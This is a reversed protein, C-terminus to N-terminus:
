GESGPSGWLGGRGGGGEKLVRDRELPSSAAQVEDLNYEGLTRLRPIPGEEKRLRQDREGGRKM